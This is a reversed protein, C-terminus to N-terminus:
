FHLLEPPIHYMSWYMVNGLTKRSCYGEGGLHVSLRDAYFDDLLLRSYWDKPFLAICVRPSSLSHTM